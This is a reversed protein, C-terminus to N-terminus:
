GPASRLTGTPLVPAVRRAHDASKAQRRLRLQRKVKKSPMYFPDDIGEVKISGGDKDSKQEFHLKGAIKKISVPMYTKKKFMLLGYVVALIAPFMLWSGIFGPHWAEALFPFIGCLWFLKGLGWMLILKVADCLTRALASIHRLIYIHMVDSSVHVTLHFVMVFGLAPSSLCMGIADMM